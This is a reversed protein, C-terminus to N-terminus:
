KEMARLEERLRLTITQDGRKLTVSDEGIESVTFDGITEGVKLIRNNIMALSHDPASLIGMLNFVPMGTDLRAVLQRIKEINESGDTIVLANSRADIEMTGSPSLLHESAKKMEEAEAYKLPIVETVLMPKEEIIEGLKVVRIIGKEERYTFGNTELIAGLAQWLDVNRLRVTVSGAVEKSIIINLNAKEAILRLVDQLDMQTVNLTIVEQGSVSATGTAKEQAGVGSAAFIIIIAAVLLVITKTFGRSQIRERGRKCGLM